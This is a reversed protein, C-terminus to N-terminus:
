RYINYHLSNFKHFMIIRYTCTIFGPVFACFFLGVFYNRKFERFGWLMSISVPFWSFIPLLRVSMEVKWVTKVHSLVKLNKHIWQKCVDNANLDVFVLGVTVAALIFIVVTILGINTKCSRVFSKLFNRTEYTEIHTSFTGDDYYPVETPVNQEYEVHILGDIAEEQESNPVSILMYERQQNERSVPPAQAFMSSALAVVSGILEELIM